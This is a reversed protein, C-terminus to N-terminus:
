NTGQPCRAPRDVTSGHLGDVGLLGRCKRQRADVQKKDLSRGAQVLRQRGHSRGATGRGRKGNDRHDRHVVVAAHGVAGRRLLGNRGQLACASGHDAAVAAVAGVQHQLRNLAHM